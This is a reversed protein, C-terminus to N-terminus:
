LFFLFHRTPPALERGTGQIQNLYRCDSFHLALGLPSRPLKPHLSLQQLAWPGLASQSDRRGVGAHFVAISQRGLTLLKLFMSNVDIICIRCIGNHAPSITYIVLHIRLCLIHCISCTPFFFSCPMNGITVAISLCIITLVYLNVHPMGPFSQLLKFFVKLLTLKILQVM